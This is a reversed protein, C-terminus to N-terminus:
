YITYIKQSSSAPPYNLIVSQGPTDLCHFTTGAQNQFPYIGFDCAIYADGAFHTPFFDSINIAEIFEAAWQAFDNGQRQDVPFFALDFHKNEDAIRRLANKFAFVIDATDNDSFKEKWHWMNLGGAHFITRGNRLTVRFSVYNYASRYAKVRLGDPMNDATNDNNISLITLKSDQRHIITDCSLAYVHKRSQALNFIDDSFYDSHSVFFMIPLDHSKELAKVVSHSPDRYYDFVLIIDDTQVMFGNNALYTVRM